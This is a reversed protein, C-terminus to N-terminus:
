TANATASNERNTGQSMILRRPRATSMWGSVPCGRDSWTFWAIYSPSISSSLVSGKDSRASGTESIVGFVCGVMAGQHGRASQPRSPVERNM